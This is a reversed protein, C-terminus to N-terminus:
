KNIIRLKITDWIQTLAPCLPNNNLQTLPKMQFLSESVDEDYPIEGLVGDTNESAFSLMEQRLKESLNAKNLVLWTPIKFHHTVQLIRELDHKGSVTPESV